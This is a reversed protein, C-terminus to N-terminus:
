HAFQRAIVKKSLVISVVGGIHNICLKHGTTKDGVLTPIRCKLLLSQLLVSSQSTSFRLWHLFSQLGALELLFFISLAVFCWWPCAGSKTSSLSLISIHLRLRCIVRWFTNNLLSYFIWWLLSQVAAWLFFSCVLDAGGFSASGMSWGGWRSTRTLRM